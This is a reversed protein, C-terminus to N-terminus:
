PQTYIKLDYGAANEPNREGGVRLIRSILRGAAHADDGADQLGKIAKISKFFQFIGRYVVQNRLVHTSNKDHSFGTERGVEEEIREEKNRM